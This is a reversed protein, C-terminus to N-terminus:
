TYIGESIGILLSYVDKIRNEKLADMPSSNGLYSDPTYLFHKRLKETPYVAKLISCIRHLKELRNRKGRPNNEGKRWRLLTRSSINLIKAIDNWRIMLVKKIFSLKEELPIPAIVDIVILSEPSKILKAIKNKLELPNMKELEKSKILIRM